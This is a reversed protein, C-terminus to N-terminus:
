RAYVRLGTSDGVVGGESWVSISKPIGEIQLSYPRYGAANVTMTCISIKPWLLFTARVGKWGRTYGDSSDVSVVTETEDNDYILSDSLNYYAIYFPVSSGGTAEAGFSFNAGRYGPIFFMIVDDYSSIDIVSPTTSLRSNNFIEKWSLSPEPEWSCQKTTPHTYSYDCQKQSPHVYITDNDETLDKITGLMTKCFVKSDSVM